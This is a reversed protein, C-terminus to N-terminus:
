LFMYKITRFPKKYYYQLLLFYFSNKWIKLFLNFHMTIQLLYM